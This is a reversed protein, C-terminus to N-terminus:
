ALSTAPDTPLADATLWGVLDDWGKTGRPNTFSYWCMCNPTRTTLAFPLIHASLHPRGRHSQISCGIYQLTHESDAWVLPISSSHGCRTSHTTLSVVLQPTEISKEKRKQMTSYCIPRTYVRRHLTLAINLVDWKWQLFLKGEFNFM